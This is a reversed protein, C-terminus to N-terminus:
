LIVSNLDFIVPVMWFPDSGSRPPRLQGRFICSQDENHRSKGANIVEAYGISEMPLKFKPVVIPRERHNSNVLIENETLQLMSIFYFM